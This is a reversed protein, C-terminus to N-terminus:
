DTHLTVVATTKDESRVLDWGFLSSRSEGAEIMAAHLMEDDTTSPMAGAVLVRKYTRGRYTVKSKM